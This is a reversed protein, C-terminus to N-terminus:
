LAPFDFNLWNCFFAGSLGSLMVFGRMDSAARSAPIAAHSIISAPRYMGRRM